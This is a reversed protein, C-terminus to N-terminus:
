RILGEGKGTQERGQLPLAQPHPHPQLVQAGIPM